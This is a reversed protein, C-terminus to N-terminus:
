ENFTLKLNSLSIGVPTNNTISYANNATWFISIANDGVIDVTVVGDFNNPTVSNMFYGGTVPRASIDYDNVIVNKINKLSKNFFITVYVRTASASLLSGLYLTGTTEYIDNNKYYSSNNLVDSLKKKNHVIGTSDWFNNNKLKIARM